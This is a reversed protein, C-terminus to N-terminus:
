YSGWYKEMVVMINEMVVMINGYSGCYKEM